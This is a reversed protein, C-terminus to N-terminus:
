FARLLQTIANQAFGGFNPAGGPMTMSPAAGAQQQPQLSHQYANAGGQLAKIMNTLAPNQAYPIPEQAPNPDPLSGGVTTPDM